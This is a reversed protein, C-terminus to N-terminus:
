KKLLNLIIRAVKTNSQKWHCFKKFNLKMKDLNNKCDIILDLLNRSSNGKFVRVIGRKELYAAREFQERNGRLLPILIAPTRAEILENCTNYGATAIILSSIAMLEPLNKEFKIIKLNPPLKKKFDSFYPGTIIAVKLNPIASALCSYVALFNNIIKAASDCHGIKISGGGGLAVTILFDRPSTKYKQRCISLKDKKIKRVIPGCIEFRRDALIARIASPPLLSKLEEKSHPLIIKQFYDGQIIKNKLDRCFARGEDIRWIFVSKLSFKSLGFILPYLSFSTNLYFDAVVLNPKFRRVASIFRRANLLKTKYARPSKFLEDSPPTLKVCHHFFRGFIRFAPATTALIIKVNKRRLVEAILRVRQLHGLGVGNIAYFLIKKM